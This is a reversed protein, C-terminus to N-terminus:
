EGELKGGCKAERKWDDISQNGTPTCDWGEIADRTVPEIAPEPPDRLPINQPGPADLLRGTATDSAPQECGVLATLALGVCLGIVLARLARQASTM